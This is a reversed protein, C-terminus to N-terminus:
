YYILYMLIYYKILYQVVLIFIERSIVCIPLFCCILFFNYQPMKRIEVM